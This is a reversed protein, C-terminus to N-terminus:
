LPFSHPAVSVSMSPVQAKTNTTMALYFAPPLILGVMEPKTSATSRIVTLPSSQSKTASTKYAWQPTSSSANRAVSALTPTSSSSTRPNPNLPWQPPNNMNEDLEPCIERRIASNYGQM